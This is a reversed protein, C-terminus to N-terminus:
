GGSKSGLCKFPKVANVAPFVDALLKNLAVEQGARLSFTLQMYNNAIVNCCLNDVTRHYNQASLSFMRRFAVPSSISYGMVWRLDECKAKSFERGVRIDYATWSEVFNQHYVSICRHQHYPIKLTSIAPATCTGPRQFRVAMTSDILFTAVLALFALKFNTLFMM